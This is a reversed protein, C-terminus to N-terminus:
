ERGQLLATAWSPGCRSSPSIGRFLSPPTSAVELLIDRLWREPLPRPPQNLSGIIPPKFWGGRRRSSLDSRSIQKIACGGRRTWPPSNAEVGVRHASRLLATPVDSNRLGRLRALCRSFTFRPARADSASIRTRPLM